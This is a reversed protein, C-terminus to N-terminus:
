RVQSPTSRNFPKSNIDELIMELHEKEMYGGKITGFCDAKHPHLPACGGCVGGDDCVAGAVPVGGHGSCTCASKCFSSLLVGTVPSRCCIKGKGSRPSRVINRVSRGSM